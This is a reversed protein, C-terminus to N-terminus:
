PSKLNSGFCRFPISVSSQSHIGSEEFSSLAMPSAERSREARFFSRLSLLISVALLQFLMTVKINPVSSSPEWFSFM